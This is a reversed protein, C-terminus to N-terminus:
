MTPSFFRLFSSLLFFLLLLLLSSPFFVFSLLFCAVPFLPASASCLGVDLPCSLLMLFSLLLLAWLVRGTALELVLM